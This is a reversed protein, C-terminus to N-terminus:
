NTRGKYIERLAAALILGFIGVPIGVGIWYEMQSHGTVKYTIVSGSVCFVVPILYYAAQELKTM